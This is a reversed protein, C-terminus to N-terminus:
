STSGCELILLTLSAIASRSSSSGRRRRQGCCDSRRLYVLREETESGVLMPVWSVGQRADTKWPKGTGMCLHPVTILDATAAFRPLNVGFFLRKGFCEFWCSSPAFALLQGMVFIRDVILSLSSM